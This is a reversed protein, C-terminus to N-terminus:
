DAEEHSFRLSLTMTLPDLSGRTSFPGIIPNILQIVFHVPGLNTAGGHSFDSVSALPSAPQLRRPPTHAPLYSM